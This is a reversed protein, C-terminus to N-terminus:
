KEISQIADLLERNVNRPDATNERTRLEAERMREMEELRRRMQEGQKRMAEIEADRKLIEAEASMKTQSRTLRETGKTPSRVTRLMEQNNNETAKESVNTNDARDTM